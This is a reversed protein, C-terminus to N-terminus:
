RSGKITGSLMKQMQPQLRRFHSLLLMDDATLTAPRGPRVVRRRTAIQIVVSVACRRAPAQAQEFM